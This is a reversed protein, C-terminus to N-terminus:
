VTWLLCPPWKHKSYHLDKVATQDKVVKVATMTKTRLGLCLYFMIGRLVLGGVYNQLSGSLQAWGVDHVCRIVISCDVLSWLKQYRKPWILALNHCPFKLISSLGYFDILGVSYWEAKGDFRANIIHSIKYFFTHCQNQEDGYKLIQFM